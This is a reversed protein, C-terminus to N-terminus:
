GKWRQRGHLAFRLGTTGPLRRRSRAAPPAYPGGTGFGHLRYASRMRCATSGNTTPDHCLGVTGVPSVDHRLGSGSRPPRPRMTTASRLAFPPSPHGTECGSCPSVGVPGCSLSRRGKPESWHADLIDSDLDARTYGYAERRTRPAEFDADSLTGYESVEYLGYISRLTQYAREVEEHAAYALPTPLADSHGAARSAFCSM